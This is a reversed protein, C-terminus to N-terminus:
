CSFRPMRFFAEPVPYLLESFALLAPYVSPNFAHDLYACLECIHASFQEIM